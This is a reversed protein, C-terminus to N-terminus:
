RLGPIRPVIVNASLYRAAPAVATSWAISALVDTPYHVADISLAIAILAILVTGGTLAARRHTSDGIVFLLALVLATIFAAHGSPFSPDTQAPTFPHPLTGADPRPRHVILKIADSPIWTIAVTGAFAAAARLQRSQFWVLTTLAITILIAPAPSFAAYVATSIAAVVGIHASNLWSALSADIPHSRLLFGLVTIAAVVAAATLLTRGPHPEQRLIGSRDNRTGDSIQQTM